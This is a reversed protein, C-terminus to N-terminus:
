LLGFYPGFWERLHYYRVPKQETWVNRCLELIVKKHSNVTHLSIGLRDAVQQPSLGGAFVELIERQRPTLQNVVSECRSREADDLWIPAPLSVDPPATRTLSQLAPFQLGLPVLPV